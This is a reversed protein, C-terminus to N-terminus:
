LWGMRERTRPKYGMIRCATLSEKLNKQTSARSFHPRPLFSDAGDHNLPKQPMSFHQGFCGDPSLTGVNSSQRTAPVIHLNIIVFRTPIVRTREAMARTAPKVPCDLARAAGVGTAAGVDDGQSRVADPRVTGVARTFGTASFVGGCIAGTVM